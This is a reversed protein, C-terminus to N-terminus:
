QRCLLSTNIVDIDHRQHCQKNRIMIFSAATNPVLYKRYHIKFM